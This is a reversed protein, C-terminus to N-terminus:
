CEGRLRERVHSIYSTAKEDVNEDGGWAPNSSSSMKQMSSYDALNQDTFGRAYGNRTPQVYTPGVESRDFQQYSTPKAAHTFSKYNALKRISFGM